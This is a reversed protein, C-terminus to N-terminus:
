LLKFKLFCFINKLTVTQKLVHTCTPSNMVNFSFEMM